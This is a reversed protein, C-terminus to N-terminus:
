KANDPCVMNMIQHKCKLDKLVVSPIACEIKEDLNFNDWTFDAYSIVIKSLGESIGFGMRKPKGDKWLFIRSWQLNDETNCLMKWTDDSGNSNCILQALCLHEEIWTSLYGINEAFAIAQRVTISKNNEYVWNKNPLLLYFSKYDDPKQLAQSLAELILQRVNEQRYDSRKKLFFSLNFTEMNVQCCQGETPWDAVEFTQPLAFGQKPFTELIKEIEECSFYQVTGHVKYPRKEDKEM